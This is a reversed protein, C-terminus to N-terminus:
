LFGGNTIIIDGGHSDSVYGRQDIATGKSTNLNRQPNQQGKPGKSLLVYSPNDWSDGDSRLKYYYIYDSLFPDVFQGAIEKITTTVLDQAKPGSTPNGNPDTIGHLAACLIIGQHDDHAVIKPYDGHLARYEELMRALQTLESRTLIQKEREQLTSYIKFISAAAALFIAATCVMEVATFGLKNHQPSPSIKSFQRHLTASPIWPM